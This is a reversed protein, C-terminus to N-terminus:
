RAQEYAADLEVHDYNMFVLPGKTHPPPGIRCNQAFAPSTAAVSAAGCERGVRRVPGMAFM